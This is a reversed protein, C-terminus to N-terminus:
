SHPRKLRGSLGILPRPPGSSQTGQQKGPCGPSLDPTPNFIHNQSSVQPGGLWGPGPSPSTCVLPLPALASPPRTSRGGGGWPVLGRPLWSSPLTGLCPTLRQAPGPASHLPAARPSGLSSRSPFPVHSSQFHPLRLRRAPPRAPAGARAHPAPRRPGLRPRLPPRLRPARTQPAAAPLTAAAPARPGHTHTRASSSRSSSPGPPFTPTVRAAGPRKGPPM